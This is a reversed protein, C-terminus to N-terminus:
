RGREQAVAFKVDFDFIIAPGADFRLQSRYLFQYPRAFAPSPLYTVLFYFPRFSMIFSVRVHVRIAKHASLSYSTPFSRAERVFPFFIRRGALLERGYIRRRLLSRAFKRLIAAETVPRHFSARARADCHLASFETSQTGVTERERDREKEKEARIQGEKEYKLSARTDYTQYSSATLARGFLENVTYKRPDCERSEFNWRSRVSLRYRPRSSFCASRMPSGHDDAFSVSTVRLVSRISFARFSALGTM